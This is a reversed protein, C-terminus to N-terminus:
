HGFVFSLWCSVSRQLWSAANIRIHMNRLIVTINNKSVNKPQNKLKNFFM